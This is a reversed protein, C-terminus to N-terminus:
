NLRYDLGTSRPPLCFSMGACLNLFVAVLWQKWVVSFMSKLLSMDYVTGDEVVSSGSAIKRAAKKGYLKVLEPDLEPKKGASHTTPQLIPKQALDVELTQELDITNPSASIPVPLQADMKEDEAGHSSPGRTSSLTSSPKKALPKAAQTAHIRRSPPLRGQLAVEIQSAVQFVDTVTM